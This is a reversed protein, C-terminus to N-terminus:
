LNDIDIFCKNEIIKKKNSKSKRHDFGNIKEHQIIDAVNKIKYIINNFWKKNRLVLVNIYKELKWYINKIWEKEKNNELINKECLLYEDLTIYLPAYEYHSNNTLSCYFEIITGKLKNDKSYLYTGDKCFEKYNDYEKFQTELFDCENLNCTEMQIQMQIWYEMKPIGDIKRNVINKIELMRGYRPNDYKINIGDPSAGIYKYQLHQICGFDGIETDYLREYFQISVPEYKNGWHMPSDYNNPLKKYESCKEYILENTSNQSKFVKWISSATLLGHRFKYWEETRQDPQVLNQLNYIKKKIDEKKYIAKRIFSNKYSRVPIYYKYIQNLNKKIYKKLKYNIIKPEVDLNEFNILYIELINQILNQNFYKYNLEEINEDIYKIIDNKISQNFDNVYFQPILFNYNILKEINDLIQKYIIDNM